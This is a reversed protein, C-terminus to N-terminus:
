KKRKKIELMRFEEDWYVLEYKGFNYINPAYGTNHGYRNKVIANGVFVIDAMRYYDSLQNM